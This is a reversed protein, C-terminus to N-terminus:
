LFAFESNTFKGTEILKEATKMRLTLIFQKLSLNTIAKVKRFLQLYKMGM